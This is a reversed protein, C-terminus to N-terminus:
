QHQRYESCAATSQFLKTGDNAPRVERLASAYYSIQWWPGLGVGARHDNM